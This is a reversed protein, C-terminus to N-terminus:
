HGIQARLSPTGPELGPTPEPPAARDEAERSTANRTPPTTKPADGRLRTITGAARSPPSLDGRRTVLLAELADVQSRIADM